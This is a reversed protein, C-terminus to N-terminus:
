ESLAGLWVVSQQLLM